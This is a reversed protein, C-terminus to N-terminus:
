REIEESNNRISKEENKQEKKDNKNKPEVKIADIWDSDLTRIKELADNQADVGYKQELDDYHEFGISSIYDVPLSIFENLGMISEGLPKITFTVPNEGKSNFMSIKGNQFVGIGPNTPDIVLKVNEDPLDMLVVAHNGTFKSITDVLVEMQKESLIGTNEEEEEKVFKQKINALKYGNGDAYITITRANYNEDIANLKRAMDDAMHRCVGTAEETGMTLGMCSILDINPNGYGAINEWMDNMVKMINQLDNLDYSKIKTGYENVEDIYEQIEAGYKSEEQKKRHESGIAMYGPTAIGM